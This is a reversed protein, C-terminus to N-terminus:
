THNNINTLSIGIQGAKEEIKRSLEKSFQIAQVSHEGYQQSIEESTHLLDNEVLRESEALGATFTGTILLIAIVGLVITIVVVILLLFLRIRLTLGDAASATLQEKIYNSQKHM